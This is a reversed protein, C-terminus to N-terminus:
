TQRLDWLVGFDLPNLPRRTIVMCATEGGGIFVAVPPLAVRNKVLLGLRVAAAIAIRDSNPAELSFIAFESELDGRMATLPLVPPLTDDQLIAAPSTLRDLGQELEKLTTVEQSLLAVADNWIGEFSLPLDEWYEEWGPITGSGMLLLPYPRGIADSSQCLIGCALQEKKMGRLWFRWLRSDQSGNNLCCRAYGNEVWNYFISGLPFPNGLRVYDRAALHKGCAIWQWVPM